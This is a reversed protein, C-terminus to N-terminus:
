NSPKDAGRLLSFAVHAVHALRAPKQLLSHVGAQTARKETEATDLATLIMVFTAPAHTRIFTAIALGDTASGGGLEVDLIAIAYQTTSLLAIAEQYSSATDVTHGARTFYTKLAFIISKQDDVILIRESTSV